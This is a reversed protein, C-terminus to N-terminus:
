KIVYLLGQNTGTAPMGSTTASVTTGSSSVTKTFVGDYSFNQSATWGSATVGTSSNQSAWGFVAFDGGKTTASGATITYDGGVVGSSATADVPSANQGSLEAGVIGVNVVQSTTATLTCAGTGTTIGYWAFSSLVTSFRYPNAPHTTWSPPCGTGSGSMSATTTNNNADVFVVIIHGSTPNTPLAYSCVTVNICLSYNNGWSAVLSVPTGHLQRGPGPAPYTAQLMAGLILVILTRM